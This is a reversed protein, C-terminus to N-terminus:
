SDLVSFFLNNTIDKYRTQFLKGVCVFQETKKLWVKFYCYKVNGDTMIVAYHFFDQFYPFYVILISILIQYPKETKGSKGSYCSGQKM